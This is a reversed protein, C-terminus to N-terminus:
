FKAPFLYKGMLIVIAGLQVTTASILAILVNTAVLRDTAAIKGNILLAVDAAFMIAVIILVVGNVQIFTGVIKAAVDQRLKADSLAISDAVSSQRQSALSIEPPSTAADTKTM